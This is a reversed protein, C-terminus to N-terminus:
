AEPVWIVFATGPGPSSQQTGQQIGQKLAEPVWPTGWIPSIMELSGQMQIMLEQAIALGLGTGTIPGKAQAGRYYRQFLQARDEAPIGPGTDGVLIGQYDQAGETRQFGTQLWVWAGSPSYKIANDLLNSVVEQLAQRDAIVVASATQIDVWMQIQKEHAVTQTVTLLPELLAALSLPVQTLTHGLGPLLAPSSAEPLVPSRDPQLELDQKLEVDGLDVTEDFDSVLAKLRQSERVIGDAISSNPDEASLRRQLLKGFTGLATLPNRFQHLLNHFVESQHSQLARKDQLRQESWHNRRDLVCGAAVGDAVQQLHSREEEHWQHQHRIVVMLGVMMDTYMLPMVLQQEPQVGFVPMASEPTTTTPPPTPPEVAQAPSPPAAEASRTSPAPPLTPAPSNIETQWEFPWLDLSEPYSAIPIFGPEEPRASPEALYIVASIPGFAHHLLRLQSQCLTRLEPSATVSM